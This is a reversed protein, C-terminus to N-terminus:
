LVTENHILSDNGNELIGISGNEIKISQRHHNGNLNNAWKSINRKTIPLRSMGNDSDLLITARRRLLFEKFAGRFQRNFIAYIFPNMASNLPPLVEVFTILIITFLTRDNELLDKFCEPCLTSSIAIICNPLWCIVFAGYIIALTKTAKRERARKRSERRDSSIEQQKIGRAQQRAIRLISGYVVGMISLPVFYVLTIFTILFNKNKNFCRQDDVFISLKPDESWSFVSSWSWLHAYIWVCLSIVIARKRNMVLPYQYPMTIMFRRDLAIILLNTVSAVGTTTDLILYLVCFGKQACFFGNYSAIFIRFPIVVVGVAIDSIALFFIFYNTIHRRLQRCLAITLCVFSNGCLTLVLVFSLFIVYGVQAGVTKAQCMDRRQTNNM